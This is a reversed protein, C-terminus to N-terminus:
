PPLLKLAIANISKGDARGAARAIATKMVLGIQARTTAWVEAIVTKILAELEENSLEQPLYTKLIAMEAEEKQLLDERGGNRFSEISDQRQKIQKQAITIVDKDSLTDLKKEIQYYRLASKFMRLTGLKIADKAFMSAKIESDIREIASPM